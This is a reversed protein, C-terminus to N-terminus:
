RRRWNTARSPTSCWASGTACSCRRSPSAAHTELGSADLAEPPVMRPGCDAFTADLLRMIDLSETHLEGDLEIAPLGGGDVLRTYWAPKDGYANLPITRM